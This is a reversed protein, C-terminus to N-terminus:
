EAHEGENIYYFGADMLQTFQSLHLVVTEETILNTITVDTSTVETITGVVNSFASDSFVSNGESILPAPDDEKEQEEYPSVEDGELYIVLLDLLGALDDKHCKSALHSFIGKWLYNDPIDNPTTEKLQKVFEVVQRNDMHLLSNYHDFVVTCDLSNSM